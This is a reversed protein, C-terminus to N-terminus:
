KVTRWISKMNELQQSSGSTGGVVLTRQDSPVAQPPKEIPRYVDEMDSDSSNTDSSDHDADSCTEPTRSIYGVSKMNEPQQSSGSTGGVVLTRQDSPVAQPPKEIPRYVQITVHPQENNVPSARRAQSKSIGRRTKKGVGNGTFDRMAVERRRRKDKMITTADEIKQLRDGISELNFQHRMVPAYTDASIEEGHNHIDFM